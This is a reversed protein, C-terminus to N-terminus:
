NRSSVEWVRHIRWLRRWEMLCARTPESFAMSMSRPQITRPICGNTSARPTTSLPVFRRM